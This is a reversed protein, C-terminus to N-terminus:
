EDAADSTYLLCINTGATMCTLFTDNLLACIALPKRGTNTVNSASTGSTLSTWIQPVGLKNFIIGYAYYSSSGDFVISATAIKGSTLLASSCGYHSPLGDYSSYLVSASFAGAAARTTGSYLGKNNEPGYAATKYAATQVYDSYTSNNIVTYDYGIPVTATKNYGISGNTYYVYDGADFGTNTYFPSVSQSGSSATVPYINHQESVRTM